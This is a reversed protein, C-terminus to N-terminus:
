QHDHGVLWLNRKTVVDCVGALLCCDGAPGTLRDASRCFNDRYFRSLTGNLINASPRCVDRRVGRRPTDKLIEDVLTTAM